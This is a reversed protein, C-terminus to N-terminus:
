PAAGAGEEVLERLASLVDAPMLAALCGGADKHHRCKRAFTGACPLSPDHLARFTAGAFTPANRAPDSPGFLAVTPVGAAAAMHMPGTDGGAFAAAHRRLLATFQRLTTDPAVLPRAGREAAMAALAEAGHREGPGHFVLSRLGLFGKEAQAMVEAWRRHNWTKTTWGAFADIVLFREGSLGGVTAWADISAIDDSTAHLRAEPPAVAAFGLATHEAALPALLALNMSIVNAAEAPPRVRDTMFIANLERSAPGRFGVRRRAGSLWAVLGSKTLGQLDIVWDWRAAPAGRLLGIGARDFRGPGRRPTVILEDLAPHGELLGAAGGHCAWGLHADPLAARLAHLVPMAHVVDGVASLKVILVRPGKRAPADIPVIRKWAGATTARTADASAEM